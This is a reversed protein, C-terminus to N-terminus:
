RRIPAAIQGGSMALYTVTMSLFAFPLTFIAGVCCAAVGALYLLFAIMQVAFISLKNGSTIERSGILSDIAGLNHDIILYFYQMFTLMLYYFPFVVIAGFAVFGYLPENTAFYVIVAPIACVALVALLGVAFLLSALIERLLYPGGQFLDNIAGPQGRAIKLLCVAQGINIWLQFVMQLLSLLINAAMLLSFPLRAAQMAVLVIQGVIQAAYNIVLGLVVVGICMWLQDKYIEWSRSLVDGIDIRTPRYDGHTGAGSTEFHGHDPYSFPAQYPNQEAGPAAAPMPPVAGFPNGVPAGPPPSPLEPSPAAAPIPQVIGCSPCKAQKGATEDGVRLLKGCQHCRFEIPM